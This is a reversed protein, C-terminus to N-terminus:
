GKVGFLDTQDLRRESLEVFKPNLEIGIYRRGLDRAVECTTGSGSFHDVVVGNPPCGAEIPTVILEKPFVAFHAGKYSGTNISWVCRMNRGEPNPRLSRKRYTPQGTGEDWLSEGNATQNEGAWRDIPSNYSELQQKFYYHKNKVFFYMYEFDQTLRDTASSPLVNPKHWIITNRRLWGREQMGLVFREPIGVLSKAQYNNGKFKPQGERLGGKNYDGGAGGSGGHSDGINVWCTGTPKLVRKVEDFVDCLHSIFLDPTPEAGLEGKWAGCLVCFSSSSQKFAEEAAKYKTQATTQGTLIEKGWEHKCNLDGGWVVPNTQYARLNWYPPSTIVCDVFEDPFTKLVELAHGQHIKNYEMTEEEKDM